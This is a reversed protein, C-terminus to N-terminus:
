TRFSAATFLLERTGCPHRAQVPGTPRHRGANKRTRSRSFSVLLTSRSHRILDKGQLPTWLHKGIDHPLLMHHARELVRDALVAHGVGEQEGAPAADARKLTTEQM